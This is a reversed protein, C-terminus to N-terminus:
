THAKLLDDISAPDTIEWQYEGSRPHLRRGRRPSCFERGEHFPSISRSAYFHCKFRSTHLLADPLSHSVHPLFAGHKNVLLNPFRDRLANLLQRREKSSIVM